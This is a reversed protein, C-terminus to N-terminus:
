INTLSPLSSKDNGVKLSMGCNRIAHRIQKHQKGGPTVMIETKGKSVNLVVGFRNFADRVINVLSTINPFLQDVNDCKALALVQQLVDWVPRSVVPNHYPEVLAAFELSTWALGTIM